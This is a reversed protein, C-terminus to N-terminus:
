YAMELAVKQALDNLKLGGGTLLYDNRDETKAVHNTYHTIGNVLGWLTAGTRSFELEISEHVLNLINQKRTGLEEKISDSYGLTKTLFEQVKSQNVSVRNLQRIYEEFDNISDTAKAIDNCLSSAKGVNGKTNKFSVAFETKWAKMGNSCVLRFCSIFLSTKTLGDFGTSLNIKVIMEDDEGKLNKFGMTKIPAEFVVKKGGKLELYTVDNFNADTDYLCREFEDFLLKPQTPTFDKGVSGLANGGTARYVGFSDPNNFGELGTILPVKVVDFLKGKISEINANGSAINSLIEM